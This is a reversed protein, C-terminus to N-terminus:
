LTIHNRHVNGQVFVLFNKKCRVKMQTCRIILGAPFSLLLYYAPKGGNLIVGGSYEQEPIDKIKPEFIFLHYGLSEHPKNSFYSSQPIRPNRNEKKCAVM